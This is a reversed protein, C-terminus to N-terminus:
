QQQQMGEPLSVITPIEEQPYAYMNEGEQYAPRYGQEYDQPHAPKPAAEPQSRKQFFPLSSLYSTIPKYFGLLLLTTCLPFILFEFLLGSHRSIIGLWLLWNFFHLTVYMMRASRTLLGSLLSWLGLFWFTIVWNAEIFIWPNLLLVHNVLDQLPILASLMAALPVGLLFIVAGVLATRLGLWRILQRIAVCLVLCIVLSVACLLISYVTSYFAGFNLAKLLLGLLLWIVPAGLLMLCAWVAFIQLPHKKRM